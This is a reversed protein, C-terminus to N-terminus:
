VHGSRGLGTCSSLYKSCVLPFIQKEGLIVGKWKKNVFKDSKIDDDTKNLANIMKYLIMPKTILSNLM